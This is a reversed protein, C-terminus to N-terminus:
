HNHPNPVAQVVRNVLRLVSNGLVYATTFSQTFGSSDILMVVQLLPVVTSTGPRNYPNGATQPQMMMRLGLCPPQLISPCSGSNPSQHRAAASFQSRSVGTSTTLFYLCLRVVAAGPSIPSGRESSSCTPSLAQPSMSTLSPRTSGGGTTMQASRWRLRIRPTVTSGSATTARLEQESISILVGTQNGPSPYPPPSESSNFRCPM